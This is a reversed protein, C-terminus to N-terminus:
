APQPRRALWHSQLQSVAALTAAIYLIGADEGPWSVGLGEAAFFVGFASLLVGVGWKLETEPLRSLPRRLWAGAALVAVTAVAAGALAPAPGSPRAALASVILVLEIGELLVGKFAVVRGAWDPQGPPPLPADHLAEQTEVYEALSSSRARRGALRLTGKRLWEVGFLLLLAGIVLRLTDLPVSALLVPGVLAAILGCVLAACAAGIAADSWRRTVGVALVIALAELLEVSVAVAAGSAVLLFTM